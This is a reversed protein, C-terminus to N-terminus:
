LCERGPAQVYQPFYMLHSMYQWTDVKWKSKSCSHRTWHRPAGHPLARWLIAHVMDLSCVIDRRIKLGGADVPEKRGPSNPTLNPSIGKSWAVPTEM